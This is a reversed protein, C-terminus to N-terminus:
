RCRRTSRSVLFRQRCGALWRSHVCGAVSSAPDAPARGEEVAGLDVRGRRALAEIRSQLPRAGLTAVVEHAARLEAEAEARRHGAALLAEAARYRAYAAEYPQRLAEWRAAVAIWAAADSRGELRTLEAEATTLDAELWRVTPSAPDPFTAVVARSRTLLEDARSRAEAIEVDRKRARGREALDAEAQLGIRGAYTLEQYRPDSLLGEAVERRADEPHDELLELQAGVVLLWTAWRPDRLEAGLARGEDLLRHADAFDGSLTALWGATACYLLRMIGEPGLMAAEGIYHRAEEWRGVTILMWAHDLVYKPGFSSGVGYDRARAFGARAIEIAGEVDGTERTAGSLHDYARGLEWVDGLREAIAMAEHLHGIAVVPEGVDRLAGALTVLADAEAFPVDVTRAAAVAREAAPVAGDLGRIYINRAYCTLVVVQARSPPASGIRDLASTLLETALAVDGFETAAWALREDLMAARESDPAGAFREVARRALALALSPHDAVGMAWSADYLVASLDSGVLKEADPVQDWLEIAREFHRGANAFAHEDAAGHAAALSAVLARPRDGAATWHYALEAMRSAGGGDSPPGARELAESLAVHLRRRRSPLLEAYIAEQVLAHRFAYQETGASAEIVLLHADIAERLGAELRPEDLGAVAALLDPDVRRGAVAAADLASRADASLGAVRVLVVDRVSSPLTADDVKAGAALIEEAFFPNGDSRALVSDVLNPTPALGLIAELQAVIETRDLRHLAIRDVRPLREMETLWALLPHGPDLDDTRITAVIALRETRLNRALFALLDRTSPDAWHLDEIVLVVTTAAGLRGLLGLFGEFIRGQLWDARPFPSLESESGDSLEPVLRALETAAPGIADRLQAGSVQGVLSRLIEVIPGFPLGSDGLPVCSGALVLTAPGRDDASARGDARLSAVLEAILRSKGIGAEGDVLTLSPQGEAAAAVAAELEALEVRRGVFVPSTVRGSM